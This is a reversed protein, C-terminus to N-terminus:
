RNPMPRNVINEGHLNGNQCHVFITITKGTFNISSLSTFSFHTHFTLGYTFNLGSTEETVKSFLTQLELQMGTMQPNNYFYSKLIM